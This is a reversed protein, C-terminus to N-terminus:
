RVRMEITNLFNAISQADLALEHSRKDILGKITVRNRVIEQGGLVAVFQANLKDARRMQAKLSKKALSFDAAIGLKRLSFALNVAFTQGEEDAFVLAIQVSPVKKSQERDKLLLAIREMGGACGIGPLDIKSGLTAFLGDYRGGAVVANQAGLGSEAVFEFVTRNYYDLGRVLYDDLEFVVGQAILGQIVHEFHRRSDEGLSDIIKPALRAIKHCVLNKCDLVRLPNTVIRRKCDECLDESREDLFKRLVSKYHHREESQGLTNLKLKIGDLKLKKFFHDMMVLIEIDAEPDSAGFLEVGFQHFQRLRGKQPREKRFMPGIYYLKEQMDESVGGREILARVVPATNEPRLCYIHEGDEVLFMEKEVIDSTEGVSRKFLALEELIPTQIEHYGFSHFIASLSNEIERFVLLDDAFLDNMGRVSRAIVM